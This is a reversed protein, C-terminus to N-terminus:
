RFLQQLFWLLWGPLLGVTGYYELNSHIRHYDPHEGRLLLVAHAIQGRIGLYDTEEDWGLLGGSLASFALVLYLGLGLCYGRRDWQPSAMLLGGQVDFM